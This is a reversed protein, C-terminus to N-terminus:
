LMRYIWGPIEYIRKNLIHGLMKGQADEIAREAHQLQDGRTRNAESVLIVGDVFAAVSLLDASEKLSPCDIVTYDFEKRLLGICERRYQRSGEWRSARDAFIPLAEPSRLEWINGTLQALSQQFQELSPECLKRLSRISVQAVSSSKWMALEHALTRTIYSVGAVPTASSLAVVMGNENSDRPRQFVTYLLSQYVSGNGPVASYSSDRMENRMMTM